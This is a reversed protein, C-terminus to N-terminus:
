SKNDKFLNKTVRLAELEEANKIATAMDGKNKFNLMLLIFHHTLKEQLYYKEEIPVKDRKEIYEDLAEKAEQALFEEPFLASAMYLSRAADEM